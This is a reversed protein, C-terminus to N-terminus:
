NLFCIIIRTNQVGFWSNYENCHAIQTHSCQGTFVSGSQFIKQGENECNKRAANNIPKLLISKSKELYDVMIVALSDWFVSAFVRGASKKCGFNRPYWFTEMGHVQQNTEPDYFYLWTENMTILHNLFDLHEHFLVCCSRSNAARARQQDANLCKPIWKAFIPTFSTICM